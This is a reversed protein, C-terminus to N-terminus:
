ARDRSGDGTGADAARDRLWRVYSTNPWRGLALRHVWSRVAAADPGEVAVSESPQGYVELRVFEARVTDDGFREREKTVTMATLHASPRVVEDVLAAQSYLERPADLPDIGLNQALPIWAGTLPFPLKCEPEWRELDGVLERLAKLDLGDDRIKVNRDRRLGLLYLDSGSDGGQKQLEM